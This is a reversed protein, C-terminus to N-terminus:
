YNNTLSLDPIPLQTKFADTSIQPNYQFTFNFELEECKFIISKLAKDKKKKNIKMANSAIHKAGM